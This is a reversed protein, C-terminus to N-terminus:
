CSKSAPAALDLAVKAANPVVRLTPTPTPNAATVKPIPLNTLSVNAAPLSVSDSCTLNLSNNPVTLLLNLLM